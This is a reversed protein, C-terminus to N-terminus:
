QAYGIRHRQICINEFSAEQHSSPWSHEDCNNAEDTLCIFGKELLQTEPHCETASSWTEDVQQSTARQLLM